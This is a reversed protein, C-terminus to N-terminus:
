RRVLPALQINRPVATGLAMDRPCSIVIERQDPTEGLQVGLAAVVVLRVREPDDPDISASMVHGDLTVIEGPALREATVAKEFTLGRSETRRATALHMDVPCAVVLEGWDPDRLMFLVRQIGGAAVPTPATVAGAILVIQGPKAREVPIEGELRFRDEGSTLGPGELREGASLRVATRVRTDRRCVILIERQDAAEGPAAGIAPVVTLRLRDGDTADAATGVVRGALVITQGADLAGAAVARAFALGALGGLGLRRAELREILRPWSAFGHERAVVLQATSLSITSPDADVRSRVRGVARLDGARAAVRLEKALRRLQVVDVGEPFVQESM